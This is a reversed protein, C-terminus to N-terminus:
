SSHSHGLSFKNLKHGGSDFPCLSLCAFLPEWVRIIRDVAIPSPQIIKPQILIAVAVQSKSKMPLKIALTTVSFYEDYAAM